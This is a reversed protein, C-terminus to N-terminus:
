RTPKTFWKKPLHFQMATENLGFNIKANPDHTLTSQDGALEQLVVLREAIPRAEPYHRLEDILAHAVLSSLWDEAQEKDRYELNQGLSELVPSVFSAPSLNILRKDAPVKGIRQKIEQHAAFKFKGAFEKRIKEKLAPSPIASFHIEQMHPFSTHVRLTAGADEPKSDPLQYMRFSLTRYGQKTILEHAGSLGGIDMEDVKAVGAEQVTFNNAAAAIVTKILADPRISQEVLGTQRDVWNASYERKEVPVLTPTVTRRRNNVYVELNWEPTIGVEALISSNKRFSQTAQDALSKQDKPDVDLNAAALHTLHMVALEQDVANVDPLVVGFTMRPPIKRDENEQRFLVLFNSQRGLNIDGLFVQEPSGAVEKITEQVRRLGSLYAGLRPDNGDFATLSPADTMGSSLDFDAITRQLKRDAQWQNLKEQIINM